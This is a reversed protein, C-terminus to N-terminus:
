LVEIYHEVIEKIQDYSFPKHIVAVGGKNVVIEDTYENFGTIMIVPTEIQNQEMKELLTMGDMKPMRIDSIVCTFDQNKLLELAKQGNEAKVCQCNLDVLMEELVDRLDGDDEVILVKLNKSM